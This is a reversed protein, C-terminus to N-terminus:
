LPLNGIAKMIELAAIAGIVGGALAILPGNLLSTKPEIPRKKM